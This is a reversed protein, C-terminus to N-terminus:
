TAEVGLTEIRTFSSWANDHHADHELRDMQGETAVRCYMRCPFAEHINDERREQRKRRPAAPKM